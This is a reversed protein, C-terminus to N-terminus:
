KFTQTETGTNRDVSVEGYGPIPKSQCNANAKPVKPTALRDGVGVEFVLSKRPGNSLPAEFVVIDGGRSRFGVIETSFSRNRLIQLIPPLRKWGIQPTRPDTGSYFLLAGPRVDPKRAPNRGSEQKSFM